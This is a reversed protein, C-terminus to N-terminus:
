SNNELLAKQGDKYYSFFQIVSYASYLFTCLINNKTCKEKTPKLFIRVKACNKFTQAFIM